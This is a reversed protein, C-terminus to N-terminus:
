YISFNDVSGILKMLIFNEILFNAFNVECECVIRCLFYMEEPREIPPTTRNASYRFPPISAKKWASGGGRGLFFYILFNWSMFIKTIVLTIVTSSCSISWVGLVFKHSILIYTYLTEKLDLSASTM